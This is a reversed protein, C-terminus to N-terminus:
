RKNILINTNDLFKNFDPILKQVEGFSPYVAKYFKSGLEDRYKGKGEKVLFKNVVGIKNLKYAVFIEFLRAWIENFRIWYDGRKAAFDYLRKYYGTVSVKTITKKDKSYTVNFLLKCLINYVDMEIKSSFNNFGISKEFHDHALKPNKYGFLRNRGGSLAIHRKPIYKEAIIYDLFHGYEHAFSGYGSAEERLQAALKKYEFYNDKFEVLKNGFLDTTKDVRRDRSLNIVKTGPEYHAFASPVGRAGFAINLTKNVGINNNTFKLVKNFDFLAVILSLLFDIRRVQNVWNGFELSRIKYTNFILDQLRKFDGKVVLKRVDIYPSRLPKFNNIYYNYFYDVNSSGAKGGTVAEFDLIKSKQLSM